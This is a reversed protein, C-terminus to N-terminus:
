FRVFDADRTDSADSAGNGGPTTRRGAASVLAQRKAPSQKAQRPLARGPAAAQFQMSPRADHGAIRFFGVSSLLQESQAALEGATSSMEEAASANMQIVQDLQQIARNIQEAGSMQERSAASIEQVLESTRQIDPVIKELLKGAKEAVGVSASSLKSIEAAATQSREALKRVEAAVVAFGKGQEGARAAEIAANLALLNTQRSIEEIISIKEAINKMATVTEAVAKGGELADDATKVAIKETQQANDANQRINASMQEVSSSAEEAASAQETAGQSMQETGSALAQSASAVNGSGSQVDAVIDRLKDVMGKMAKLLRGIEDNQDVDIDIELDGRGLNEVIGVARSLSASIGRGITWALLLGTVIAVLTVVFIAVTSGWYVSKASHHANEADAADLKELEQLYGRMEEFKTAGQGLTLDIALTRGDRSDEVRGQVVQRSIALWEERAQEYRGLIALHEKDAGLLKKIKLVNEDARRLSEKHEALLRGFIESDAASFILSREAVMLQNLDRDVSLLLSTTPLRRSFIDDLSGQVKGTGVYGTLGVVVILVLLSAFGLYLKQRIQVDRFRTM